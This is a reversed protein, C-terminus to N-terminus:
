KGGLSDNCAAFHQDASYIKLTDSEIEFHYGRRGRLHIMIQEQDCKKLEMLKKCSTAVDSMKSVNKMWPYDPFYLKVNDRYSITTKENFGAPIGHEFRFRGSKACSDVILELGIADACSVRVGYNQDDDFMAPLIFYRGTKSLKFAIETWSLNKWNKIEGSKAKKPRVFLSDGVGDQDLDHLISKGMKICSEGWSSDYEFNKPMSSLLRKVYQPNQRESSGFLVVLLMIVLQM